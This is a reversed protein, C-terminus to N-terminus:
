SRELIRARPRASSPLEAPGLLLLLLLEAREEVEEEEM